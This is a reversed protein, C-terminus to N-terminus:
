CKPTLYVSTEVDGENTHAEGPCDDVIIANMDRDLLAKTRQVAHNFCVGSNRMVGEAYRRCRVRSPDESAVSVTATSSTHTPSLRSYLSRSNVSVNSAMARTDDGHSVILSKEDDHVMSADGSSSSSSPASVPARVPTHVSPPPFLTPATVWDWCGSNGSFTTCTNTSAHSCNTQSVVYMLSTSITFILSVLLTSTICCTHSCQPYGHILSLTCQAACHSIHSHTHSPYRSFPNVIRCASVPMDELKMVLPSYLFDEFESSSSSSGLNQHQKLCRTGGTDHGDTVVMESGKEKEFKVPHTTGVAQTELQTSSSSPAQPSQAPMTTFTSSLPISSAPPRSMAAFSSSSSSSSSSSHLQQSHPPLPIPPTQMAMALAISADWRRRAGELSLKRAESSQKDFVDRSERCLSM